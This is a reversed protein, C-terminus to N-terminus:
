RVAEKSGEVQWPPLPLVALWRLVAQAMRSDPHAAILHPFIGRPGDLPFWRGCTACQVEVVEGGRSPARPPLRQGASVQRPHTM